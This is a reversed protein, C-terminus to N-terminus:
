KNEDVLDIGLKNSILDDITRYSDLGYFGCPDYKKHLENEYEDYYKNFVVDKFCHTDLKDNQTIEQNTVTHFLGKSWPLNNTIIPHILLDKCDLMPIDIINDSQINYIYILNCGEFGNGTKADTAIVRGWIYQGKIISLVFIDGDVIM